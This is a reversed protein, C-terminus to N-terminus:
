WIYQLLRWSCKRQAYIRLLKYIIYIFTVFILQHICYTFFLVFFLLLREQKWDRFFHFNSKNAAMTGVNIIQFCGMIHCHALMIFSMWKYAFVLSENILCSDQGLVMKCVSARALSHIWCTKRAVIIPCVRSNVSWSSSVHEVQTFHSLITMESILYIKILM